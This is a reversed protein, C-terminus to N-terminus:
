CLKHRHVQVEVNSLQFAPWRLCWRIQPYPDTGLEGSITSSSGCSHNPEKAGTRSVQQFAGEVQVTKKAARQKIAVWTKSNVNTKGTDGVHNSARVSCVTSAPSWMEAVPAVITASPLTILRSNDRRCAFPQMIGAPLDPRSRPIPQYVGSGQANGSVVSHQVPDAFSNTCREQNSATKTLISSDELTKFLGGSHDQSSDIILTSVGSQQHQAMNFHAGAVFNHSASADDPHISGGEDHGQVYSLQFPRVLPVGTTNRQLGCAESDNGVHDALMFPESQSSFQDPIGASDTSSALHMSAKYMSGDLWQESCQDSSLSAQAVGNKGASLEFVNGNGLRASVESTKARDQLGGAYPQKLHHMDMVSGVLTYLNGESDSLTTINHHRQQQQAQTPLQLQPQTLPPPLQQQPQPPLATVHQPQHPQHPQPQPQPQPQQQQQMVHHSAPQESKHDNGDSRERARVLVPIAALQASPFGSASQPILKANLPPGFCPHQGGVVHAFLAPQAFYPHHSTSLNQATLQSSYTPQHPFDALSACYPM